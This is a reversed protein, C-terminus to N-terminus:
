EVELKLLRMLNPVDRSGYIMDTTHGLEDEEGTIERAQTCLNDLEANLAKAKSQIQMLQAFQEATIKKM